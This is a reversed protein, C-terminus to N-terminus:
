PEVILLGEMGAMQHGPSSCYFSFRGPTEPTFSFNQTEKASMPSHIDYADLDFAHAYGDRNIIRLNVTHGAKVTVTGPTFSMGRAQITISQSDQGGCGSLVILLIGALLYSRLVTM